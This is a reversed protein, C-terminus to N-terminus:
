LHVDISYGSSHRAAPVTVPYLIVIISSYSSYCAYCFHLLQQKELIYLAESNTVYPFRRKFVTEAPKKGLASLCDVFSVFRYTVLNFSYQNIFLAFFTATFIGPWLWFATVKNVLM